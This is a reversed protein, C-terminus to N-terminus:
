VVKIAKQTKKEKKKKTQKNKSNNDVFYQCRHQIFGNMIGAWKHQTAHSVATNGKISNNTSATRPSRNAYPKLTPM